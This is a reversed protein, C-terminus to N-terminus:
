RGGELVIARREREFPALDAARRLAYLQYEAERFRDRVVLLEGSVADAALMAPAEPLVVLDVRSGGFLDELALTLDVRQRADLHQQPEPLVAIDVDSASSALPSRGAAWADIDQARSGFVYIADLRFQAAIDALRAGANM